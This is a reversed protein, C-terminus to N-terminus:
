VFAVEESYAIYCLILVEFVMIINYVCVEWIYEQLLAHIIIWVMSYFIVNHVDGYGHRYMTVEQEKQKDLRVSHIDISSYLTMLQYCM